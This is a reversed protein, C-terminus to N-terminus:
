ILLLPCLQFCWDLTKEHLFFLVSSEKTGFIPFVFGYSSMHFFFPILEYCVKTLLDPVLCIEQLKQKWGENLNPDTRIGTPLDFHDAQNQGNLSQIHLNRFVSCSVLRNDSCMDSLIIFGRSESGSHCIDWLGALSTSSPQGCWSPNIFTVPSESTINSDEQNGNFEPTSVQLLDVAFLRSIHKNKNDPLRRCHNIECCWSSARTWKPTKHARPNTARYTWVLRMRIVFNRANPCITWIDFTESFCSSISRMFWIWQDILSPQKLVEQSLVDVLASSPFLLLVRHLWVSACLSTWCGSKTGSM